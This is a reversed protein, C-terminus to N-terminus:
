GSGSGFELRSSQGGCRHSKWDSSILHGAARERGAGHSGQRPGQRPGQAAPRHERHRAGVPSGQRHRVLILMLFLSLLSVLLLLLLAILIINPCLM